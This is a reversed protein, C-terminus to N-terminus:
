LSLESIREIGLKINERITGENALRLRNVGVLADGVTAKYSQNTTQQWVVRGSNSTLRWMVEAAVTMDFGAFPQKLRVLTVSLQYDAGANRIVRSFVRHRQLSTELARRFDESSVQSTWMPNTERGGAVSVRVSRNFTRRVSANSPVM